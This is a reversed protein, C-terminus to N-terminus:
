EKMSVYVCTDEGPIEIAVGGCEQNPLNNLGPKFRVKHDPSMEVDPIGNAPRVQFFLHYKDTVERIDALFKEKTSM